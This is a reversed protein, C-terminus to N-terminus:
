RSIIELGLSSKLINIENKSSEYSDFKKIPMIQKNNSDYLFIRIDNYHIDVPQNGRIYGVYGRHSKKLGLSMEPKIYIWKGIPIIGFLDDSYKIRKNEADIFTSSTTFAAFAGIIIFIIGLFSFYTAVIGGILMFLGTSSGFPGFTKDLKNRAIM